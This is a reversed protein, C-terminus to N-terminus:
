NQYHIGQAFGSISLPYGWVAKEIGYLDLDGIDMNYTDDELMEVDAILEPPNASTQEKKEPDAEKNKTQNNTEGTDPNDQVQELQIVEFTNSSLPKKNVKPGYNRKTM